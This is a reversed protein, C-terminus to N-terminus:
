INKNITNEFIDCWENLIKVSNKNYSIISSNMYSYNVLINYKLTTFAFVIFPEYFFFLSDILKIHNILLNFFSLLFVLKNNTIKNWKNIIFDLLKKFEMTDIMIDNQICNILNNNLLPFNAYIYEKNCCQNLNICNFNDNDCYCKQKFINTQDIILDM